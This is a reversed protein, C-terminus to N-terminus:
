DDGGAIVAWAVVAWAVVAWGVLGVGVHGVSFDDALQGGDAWTGSFKDM